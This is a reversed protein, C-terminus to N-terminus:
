NWRGVGTIGQPNSHYTILGTRGAWPGGPLGRLYGWCNADTAGEPQCSYQQEYVNPVV